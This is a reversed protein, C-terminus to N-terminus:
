GAFDLQWDRLIFVLNLNGDGVDSISWDASSGGLRAAVAPLQALYDRRDTDRLIRYEDQLSADPPRQQSTM